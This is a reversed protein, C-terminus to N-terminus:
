GENWEYFVLFWVSRRAYAMVAASAAELGEGGKCVILASTRCMNRLSATNEGAYRSSMSTTLVYLWIHETAASSTPMHPTTTPQNM